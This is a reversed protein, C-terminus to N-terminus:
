GTIEIKATEVDKANIKGNHLEYITDYNEISSIRHTITIITIDRAYINNLVKRETTTDLNSTGEDIILLKPNKVLVRAISLRQRQGGSLSIGNEGIVTQYGM